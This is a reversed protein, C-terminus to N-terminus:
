LVRVPLRTLRSLDETGDCEDNGRGRSYLGCCFSERKQVLDGGGSSQGFSGSREKKFFCSGSVWKM